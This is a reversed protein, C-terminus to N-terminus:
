EAARAQLEMGRGVHTINYRRGAVEVVAITYDSNLVEVVTANIGRAEAEALWYDLARQNWGDLAERHSSPQKYHAIFDTVHSNM